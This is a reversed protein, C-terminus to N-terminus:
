KGRKLVQQVAEWNKQIDAESMGKIMDLTLTKGDLNAPPTYGSGKLREEVLSQAHKNFVEELKALNATTKEEDESIFFDVLDLPLKKENAVKIAKNTLTEKVKEAQIKALEAKIKDLELDKADKEPYRKKIEKDLEEQLKTPYTKELWTKLGKDFHKDKESDFWKKADQNDSVFKQIGDLTPTSLGQLYGKVDDNDKNSEFFQKVQELEM